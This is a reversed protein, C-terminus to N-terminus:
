PLAKLWVFGYPCGPRHANVYQADAALPTRATANGDADVGWVVTDQTGTVGAMVFLAGAEARWPGQVGAGPMSTPTLYVDYAVDGQNQIGICGPRLVQATGAQALVFLLALMVIAVTTRTM